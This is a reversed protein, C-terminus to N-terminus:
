RLNEKGAHILDLTEAPSLAVGSLYRFLTTHAELEHPRDLYHPGARDEVCAMYPADTGETTFLTFSGFAFVGAAFPLVQLTVNPREALDALHDLQAGMVESDGAVRQLTSEDLIVWLELPDPRRDLVAQRAIRSEVRRTIAEDSKPVADAREVATAYGATQCLGHITTAEFAWLQAAAQELSALHGLWAPVQHGNPSVDGDLLAELEALSVGLHEALPRRHRALPTSRGQEWHAVSAVAV